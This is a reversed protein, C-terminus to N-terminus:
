IKRLESVCLYFWNIPFSVVQATAIRITSIAFLSKRVVRILISMKLQDENEDKNSALQM